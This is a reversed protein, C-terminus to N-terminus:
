PAYEGIRGERLFREIEAPDTKLTLVRDLATRYAEPTDSIRAYEEAEPSLGRISRSTDAKSLQISSGGSLPGFLGGGAGEPPTTAVKGRYIWGIQRDPTAVKYWRGQMTEVTLEAGMELDAVTASSASDAAKLKADKSVVWVKEQAAAAGALLFVLAITGLLTQWYAQPRMM